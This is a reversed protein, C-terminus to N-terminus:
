AELLEDVSHLIHTYPNLQRDKWIKWRSGVADHRQEYMIQCKKWVSRPIPHRANYQVLRIDFGEKQIKNYATRINQRQHKSLSSVYKDYNDTMDIAVCKELWEMKTGFTGYLLSDENINDMQIAYGKFGGLVSKIGEYLFDKDDTSSVIDEYDLRGYSSLGRILRKKDNIVLPVICQCGNEECLFYLIRWRSVRHSLYFSFTLYRYYGFSQIPLVCGGAGTISIWRRKLSLICRYCNVIM